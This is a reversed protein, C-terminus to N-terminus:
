ADPEREDNSNDRFVVFPAAAAFAVMSIIAPLDSTTVAREFVRVIEPVIACAAGVLLTWVRTQEILRVRHGRERIRTVAAFLAAM